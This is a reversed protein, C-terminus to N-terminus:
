ILELITIHCLALTSYGLGTILYSVIYYYFALDTTCNKRRYDRELNVLSCIFQVCNLVFGKKKTHCRYKPHM